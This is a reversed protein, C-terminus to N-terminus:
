LMEELISDATGTCLGLSKLDVDEDRMLSIFKGIDKKVTEPAAPGIVPDLISQNVKMRSAIVRL